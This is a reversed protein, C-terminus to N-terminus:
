FKRSGAPFSKAAQRPQDTKSDQQERKPAWKGVSQHRVPYRPYVGTSNSRSQPPEGRGRSGSRSPPSYWGRRMKGWKRLSPASRQFSRGRTLTQLESEEKAKQAIIAKYPAQLVEEEDTHRIMDVVSTGSRLRVREINASSACDLTLDVLQLAHKCAEKQKGNAINYILGMQVQYMERMTSILKFLKRDKEKESWKGDTIPREIKRIKPFYPEV